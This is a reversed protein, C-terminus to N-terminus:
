LRVVEVISVGHTCLDNAERVLEVFEVRSLEARASVFDSWEDSTLEFEAEAVIVWKIGHVSFVRFLLLKFLKIDLAVQVNRHDANCLSCSGLAMLSKMADLEDECVTVLCWEEKAVVQMLWLDHVLDWNVWSHEDSANLHLHPLAVESSNSKMTDTFKVAFMEGEDVVCPLFSFFGSAPKLSLVDWGALRDNSNHDVLEVCVYVSDGEQEPFLEWVHPLGSININSIILM